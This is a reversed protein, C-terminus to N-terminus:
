LKTCLESGSSLTLSGSVHLLSTVNHTHTYIYIYIYVCVCVCMLHPDTPTM